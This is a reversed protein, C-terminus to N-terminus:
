NSRVCWLLLFKVGGNYACTRKNHGGNRIYDKGDLGGVIELPFAKLYGILLDM